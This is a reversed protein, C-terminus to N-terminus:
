AMKSFCWSRIELWSILTRIANLVVVDGAKAANPLHSADLPVAAPANPDAIGHHIKLLSYIAAYQNQPLERGHEFLSRVAHRQWLPLTETWELIKLLLSM